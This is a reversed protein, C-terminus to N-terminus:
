APLVVKALHSTKTREPAKIAEDDPRRAAELLQPAFSRVIAPQKFGDLTLIVGISGGVYSCFSLWSRRWFVWRSGLPM